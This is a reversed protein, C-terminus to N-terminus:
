NKIYWDSYRNVFPGLSGETIGGVSFLAGLYGQEAYLYLYPLERAELQQIETLLPQRIAKDPEHAAKDYLATLKSNVYGNFNSKWIQEFRTLDVSTAQWGGLFLDYDYPAQKLQNLYNLYNLPVLRLSVGLEALQQQFYIALRGRLQGETNYVLTLEPIEHGQNDLLRNDRWTYGADKLLLRAQEFGGGYKEVNESFAPHGPPVDSYMPTGHGNILNARDTVSALARRFAPDAPLTRRFNFGLYNWEPMAPNWHYTIVKAADHMEAYRDAPPVYFDLEGRALMEVAKRSDPLYLFTLSNLHPPPSITSAENRVFTIRNQKVWEQLKWPGSVVSPRLIDSNREAESWSRGEWIHKPLPEVFNALEFPDAYRDRLKVLLTQKDPAIYSEIAAAFPAAGTWNKGPDLAQTYTWIYDATTIPQGDSWKLDSRLVFVVVKLTDDYKFALAANPEWELTQPNRRLLKADYLLARYQQSVLDPPGYPQLTTPEQEQASLLDGGIARVPRPTATIAPPSLIIPTPSVPNPSPTPTSLLDRTPSV